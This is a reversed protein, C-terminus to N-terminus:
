PQVRIEGLFQEIAASELREGLVTAQYVTTGAVFFALVQTMAQGDPRRGESQLRVAAVDPRAGPPTFAAPPGPRGAINDVSLERWRVLLPRVTAADVEGIWAVAWTASATQCSLMTLARPPGDIRVSRATTSPRCPFQASLPNGPPRVDRWDLAPSCAAVMATGVCALLNWQRWCRM